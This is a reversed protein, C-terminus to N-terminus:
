YTENAPIPAHSVVWYLVGAIVVVLVVALWIRSGGIEEGSSVLRAAKRGSFMAGVLHEHFVVRHAVIALVHVVVGGVIWYFLHRHLSTLQLSRAQSVYGYLPGFNFIEDNGFMGIAAQVGLAALLAVVMLAGLPNHGPFNRHEGRVTAILYRTTPVPGRVFNWFRAHRTGVLGWCIRFSVLVLVTYGCWVHYSFAKVGIRNTLYAGVVALM